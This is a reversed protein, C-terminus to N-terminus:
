NCTEVVTNGKPMFVKQLSYFTSLVMILIGFCMCLWHPIKEKELVSGTSLKLFCLPPLVFALVTASFGGTLELVIGL